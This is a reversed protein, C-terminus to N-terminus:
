DNILGDDTMLVQLRIVVGGTGPTGTGAGATLETDAALPEGDALAGLSGYAVQANATASQNALYGDPDAATGLNVTPATGGTVNGDFQAPGIVICGAPLYVGTGTTDAVSADAVDVTVFHPVVGPSPGTLKSSSASTAGRQRVYGAFTSRKGM